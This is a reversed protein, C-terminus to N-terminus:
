LGPVFLHARGARPVILMTVRELPMAKYGTLYPLDSGVSLCLADVDSTEMVRRAADIRHQYESM